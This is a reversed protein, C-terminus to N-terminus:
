CHPEASYASCHPGKVHLLVTGLHMELFNLFQV